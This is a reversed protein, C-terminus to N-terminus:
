RADHDDEDSAVVFAAATHQTHTMSLHLRVIGARAALEAADGHLQVSPAGSSDRQIEISHWRAAGIGVRLSKLVAEKAAFRAALREPRAAADHRESETFLRAAIRPQRELALAFRAVDVVDVGVGRTAM